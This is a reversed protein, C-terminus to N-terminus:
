LALTQHRNNVIRDIRNIKDSIRRKKNNKIATESADPVLADIRDESGSPGGSRLTIRDFNQSLRWSL